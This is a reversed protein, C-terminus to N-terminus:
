VLLEFTHREARLPNVVWRPRQKKSLFLVFINEYIFFYVSRIETPFFASDIIEKRYM